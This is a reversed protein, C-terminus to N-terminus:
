LKLLGLSRQLQVHLVKLNYISQLYNIKSQTLSLEADALELRSSLGNKYRDNMMRYNLETAEVTTKQVIVQANAEKWRSIIAALEANMEERLDDLRIKEQRVKIRAQNIQANTRNGNFVPVTLQLGVFSTRPWAYNGLSLNDAQAQLQYQGIISVQPLRQSKNVSLQKQEQEVSLKQLRIDHRNLEATKLVHDLMHFEAQESGINLSDTPKIEVDENLGILKKLQIGNVEINNRLYSISSKLNEVAIYSRLTDVKLGRGQAFLAKTDELARTNRWLSQQQLRLQSSMLLLNFYGASVQFALQSQLDTTKEKQIKENIMAAQKQRRASEMLLPQTLSFFSNFTNKGGVAVDQVPKDTGAFSGPLFIVQRDFYRSYVANASINPLLRSQTERTIEKYRIEELTQIQLEKNGKAALALAEALTLTKEQAYLTKGSFLPLLALLINLFKTKM